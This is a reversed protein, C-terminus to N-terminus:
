AGPRPNSDRWPCRMNSTRVQPRLFSDNTEGLSRVTAQKAATEDLDLSFPKAATSDTDGNEGIPIETFVAQNALRGTHDDARTDIGAMDTALTLRADIRTRAEAYDNHHEALRPDITDVENRFRDHFKAFEDLILGNALRAEILRDQETATQPRRSTLADASACVCVCATLQDLEHILMNRLGDRAAPTSREPNQKETPWENKGELEPSGSM